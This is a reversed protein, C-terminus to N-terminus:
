KKCVFMLNFSLYPWLPERVYIHRNKGLTLEGFFRVMRFGAQEFLSRWRKPPFTSVHTPDFINTLMTHISGLVAYNLPVSGILVGEERLGDFVKQIVNGPQPLHELINFAAIADYRNSPLQATEINGQRVRGGTREAAVRAAYDSLDMGQVDFHEKAATLFEGRGCGIEFLKGGPKYAMLERLHTRVRQSNLKPQSLFREYYSKGYHKTTM